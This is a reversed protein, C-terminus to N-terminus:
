PAPKGERILRRLLKAVDSLVADTIRLQARTRADAESLAGERAEITTAGIILDNSTDVVRLRAEIRWFRFKEHARPEASEELDVQVRIAATEPGRRVVLGYGSVARELAHNLKDRSPADAPQVDVRVDLSRLQSRIRTELESQSVAPKTAEWARRDLTALHARLASGDLHHGLARVHARLREMPGEASEAERLAMTMAQDQERVKAVISKSAMARDLIALAYHRATAPDMWAEAVSVGELSQDTTSRTVDSRREDFMWRTGAAGEQHSSSATVTTESQVRVEFQKAIEARAREAAAERTDGEGVGVLFASKPYARAHGSQTWPPAESSRLGRVGGACSSTALAFVVVLIGRYATVGM